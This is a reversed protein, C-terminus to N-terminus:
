MKGFLLPFSDRWDVYGIVANGISTLELALVLLLAYSTFSICAGVFTVWLTREMCPFGNKRVSKCVFPILLLYTCTMRWFLKMPAAVDDLLALATGNSSVAFIAAALGFAPLLSNAEPQGIQVGVTEEVFDPITEPLISMSRTMSMDLFYTKGDDADRLEQQWTERLLDAELKIGEQIGILSNGLTGSFSQFAEGLSSRHRHHRGTRRPGSPIGAFLSQTHRHQRNSPPLPAANLSHLLADEESLPEDDQKM